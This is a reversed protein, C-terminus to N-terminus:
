KPWDNYRFPGESVIIRVCAANPYHGPCESEVAPKHREEAEAWSVCGDRLYCLLGAAVDVM